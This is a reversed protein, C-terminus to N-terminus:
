SLIHYDQCLKSTKEQKSKDRITRVNITAINLRKKCHLLKDRRRNEDRNVRGIPKHTLRDNM